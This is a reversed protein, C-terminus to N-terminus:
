ATIHVHSLGPSLVDAEIQRSLAQFYWRLTQLICQSAGLPWRRSLQSSYSHVTVTSGNYCGALSPLDMSAGSMDLTESCSHSINATTHDALTPRKNLLRVRTMLVALLGTSLPEVM